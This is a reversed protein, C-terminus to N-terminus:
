SAPPVIRLVRDDGSRPAGRGDRNSTLVFLSGDPAETVARLRGFRGAFLASNITVRRGDLRVRRLQEGRLAAFLYDGSWRSRPLTVFTAGSPAISDPYVILPARFGDHERGRARPWGYNGGRTVNNVEDDGDPGHETSILRRSGPEWAFGQANRHGSSFVEPTGGDGRYESPDLRLFKGNRSGADQALEPQGADGTSVYLRDDPGFRLRGSDHIAGAAIGDLITADRRLRLGQLRYRVVEIGSSTTLYLYVFDNRRGFRPDIAVGLLGGEGLASVAIRALPERRLRRDRTLLRVRGPRETVLARGDPLFAIDWPVELGTAITSVRAGGRSRALRRRQGRQRSTMPSAAGAAITQPRQARDATTPASQERTNDSCGATALLALLALVM